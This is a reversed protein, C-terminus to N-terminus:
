ACFPAGPREDTSHQFPGSAKIDGVPSMELSLQEIFAGNVSTQPNVLFAEEKSSCDVFEIRRMAKTDKLVVMQAEEVHQSTRYLFITEFVLWGAPRVAGPVRSSIM